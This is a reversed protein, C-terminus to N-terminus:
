ACIADRRVLESYILWNFRCGSFRVRMRAHQYSIAPQEWDFYIANKGASMTFSAKFQFSVSLEPFKLDIEKFCTEFFVLTINSISLYEYSLPFM